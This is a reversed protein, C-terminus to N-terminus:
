ALDLDAYIPLHDSMRLPGANEGKLCAPSRSVVDARRDTKQGAALAPVNKGLLWDLKFCLYGQYPDLRKQLMKLISEPLSGAEELSIIGTRATEENSNFAEWAFGHQDLIDFLPEKGREPHLLQKKIKDPSCFLLQAASRVMRWATGRPFTNVNLDGGLLYAENRAGPLNELIHGMQRARCQPTNRLELHLSGAWLISSRLQLQVWLCNRWGYRKEQFEYPEFSVPLPVVCANLIPYRSLIANGQLSEQNDGELTLEEETGKTLEIYAPAFASNMGLSEALARAVPRNQSRNMGQDAENLMVVDAWKLIDSSQLRDLIADFRKGKEINWQVVRLFSDLRPVAGPFVAVQPTKLFSEIEKGSSRFFDSRNLDEITKYKRLNEIWPNQPEM